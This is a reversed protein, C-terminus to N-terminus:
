GLSDPTIVVRTLTGSGQSTLHLIINVHRNRLADVLQHDIMGPTRYLDVFMQAIEEPPLGDTQSSSYTVDISLSDGRFSADFREIGQVNLMAQVNQPSNLEAVAAQIVKDDSSACAALLLAVAAIAIPRM